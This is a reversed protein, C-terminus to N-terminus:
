DILIFKRTTVSHNNRVKLLYIGPAISNSYQDKGNWHLVHEGADMKRDALNAITQGNLNIIDATIHSGSGLALSVWMEDKVPNPYIHAALGQDMGAIQDNGTGTLIGGFFDLIRLILQEKTSPYEGDVLSGFEFATGITKYTGEEYAIANGFEPEPSYLATFADGEPILYHDNYPSNGSVDFVLGETFTGEIGYITDYEFWIKPETDINFMPHLSTQPDDYWTRRGELYINGGNELYGALQQAEPETLQHGSFIIGLCVFVSKYLGLDPPISAMYDAILETNEFAEMIVPGSYANPDLDLILAAFQGVSIHFSDAVSINYDASATFDFSAQHGGPTSEDATVSFSRYLTDGTSINGYDLTDTHITINPDSSELGGEVNFAESSGANTVSIVVDVTEGPDLRGNENGSPDDISFDDYALVPAHGRILFDSLWTSDGDSSIIEFEVLHNDPLAESVQFAFADQISSISNAPINGYNEMSDTIMVYPSESRLTVEVNEADVLGVNNVSLTLLVSDIYDMLGNDNGVEDNIEFAEFVVYPINSPIVEVQEHYRQCNTKTVVVDMFTGPNLPDISITVPSGTAEASAILEGDASLAIFAASDAQVTFSGTGEVIVNDHIVMLNQPLESYLTLFADGHHHFLHYTVEKNNTNYPWNSQQLFYKGAVNGYAPFIGRYDPTTVEDPMFDPWLHDYLGWVYTDNVFSYSVESAAILGLAGYESRHFKEAFCESYWNYKGTLCNVSFVFCYEDNTLQDIDSNGYDPEGWGTNGGHDRHQLIFAGDNIADNIMTADGGDWSGLESPTAPIYGLGNPGFYNLITNTNPATSWPDVGPDGGYVENIRVPEKGQVHKFYGGVTESCIQFWRETQWGLATIPHNYFGPDTPPTREHSLMKGIMNELHTSNQATIRALIIDAMGNENVDGYIHDSACYYNWIPAMIGTPSTGYDGLILVAAPPTDWTNYANDIYSEVSSADNGGTETTTVVDTLIGQMNRFQKLSDAWSLFTSDDPSIILYECGTERRSPKITHNIDPLAGYNALASRLVPDFWQSRLREEGYQGTGGTIELELVLDRYLVLEKTVPNYMFPSIGLMVADVGRIQTKESISVPQSPYFENASYVDMNKEYHLPGRDTVKPIRPSPSIDVGRFVEKRFDVINLTIEAGRPIAILKGVGPIDPAGEQGPLYQGPLSVRKWTKKDITVPEFSFANVSYTVTISEPDAQEIELGQKNWSDDYHYNQAMLSICGFLFSMAISIRLRYTMTYINPEYFNFSRHM